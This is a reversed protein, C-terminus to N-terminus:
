RGARGHNMRVGASGAHVLNNVGELEIVVKGTM